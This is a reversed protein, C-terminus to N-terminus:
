SSADRTHGRECKGPLMSPPVRVTLVADTSSSRPLLQALEREISLAAAHEHSGHLEAIRERIAAVGYEALVDAM